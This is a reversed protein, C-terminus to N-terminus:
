QSQYGYDQISDLHQAFANAAIVQQEHEIENVPEIENPHNQIQARPEPEPVDREDDLLYNHDTGQDSDSEWVEEDSYDIWETDSPMLLLCTESIYEIYAHDEFNLNNLIWPVIAPSAFHITVKSIEGSKVRGLINMVM